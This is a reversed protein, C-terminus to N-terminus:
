ACILEHLHRGQVAVDAVVLRRLDRLVRMVLPRDSRSDARSSPKGSRRRAQRTTTGASVVCELAAVLSRRKPGPRQTLPGTTDSRLRHQQAGLWAPAPQAQALGAALAQALGTGAIDSGRGGDDGDVGVSASRRWPRLLTAHM